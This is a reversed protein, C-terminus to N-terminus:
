GASLTKALRMARSADGTFVCAALGYTSDNAIRVAEDESSFRMVTLVPGFIEERAVRMANTADHILTPSMYCGGALEARSRLDSYSEVRAGEERGIRLYEGVRDLQAASVLPGMETAPDDPLGIRLPRLKAELAEVFADAISEELLLRTCAGCVQGSNRVMDTYAVGVAKELDADGFVLSASKGGLELTLRKVTSAAERFIAKGTTTGGTFSIKAVRPDRVLAMGVPDGPGNVINVVGPPFGAEDILPGLEVTSLPTVESPKIVVCNGAALAPAMKLLAISLPFNWPVILGCVGLPERVTFDFLTRDSVDLTEGSLGLLIGAYYELTGPAGGLWARSAAIPKGADYCELWSLTEVKKELLGALKLLKRSRERPLTSRWTGIAKQAAAVATAVDEPGAEYVDALKQGTSPDVTVFTKGSLSPVEKGGILMPYPGPRLVEERKM